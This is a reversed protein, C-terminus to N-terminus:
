TGAGLRQRDRPASAHELATIRRLAEEFTSGCVEPSPQWGLCFAPRAAQGYLACENRGNLNACRIGAPKGGPMNPIPTAISPAICCAGCKKCNM